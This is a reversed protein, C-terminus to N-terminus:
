TSRRRAHLMLMWGLVVLVPLGSLRHGERDIRLTCQRRLGVLRPVFTVLPERDERMFASVRGWFHVTRWLLEDGRDFVVRGSGLWGGQYRAIERDRDASQVVIRRGFWDVSRILYRGAATEAVAHSRLWGHLTLTAVPRNECMLVHRRSFAGTRVWVLDHDVTESLAIM